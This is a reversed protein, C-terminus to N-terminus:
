NEGCANGGRETPIRPLFKRPGSQRRHFRKKEILFCGYRRCARWWFFYWTSGSRPYLGCVTKNKFCCKLLNQNKHVTRAIQCWVTVHTRENRRGSNLRLNLKSYFLINDMKAFQRFYTSEAQENSFNCNSRFIKRDLTRLASM